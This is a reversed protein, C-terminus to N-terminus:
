PQVESSLWHSYVEYLYEKIDNRDRGTIHLRYGFMLSPTVVGTHETWGCYFGDEDMHHFDFRFVLREPTSHEDLRTGRDIGSGSPGDRLISALEADHRAWWESTSKNMTACVLSAIRQYTKM